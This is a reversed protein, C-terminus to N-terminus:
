FWDNEKEYDNEKDFGALVLSIFLVLVLGDARVLNRGHLAPTGV